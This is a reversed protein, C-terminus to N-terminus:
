VVLKEAAEFGEAEEVPRQEYLMAGGPLKMAESYIRREGDRKKRRQLVPYADNVISIQSDAAVMEQWQATQLGSGYRHRFSRTSKARGM